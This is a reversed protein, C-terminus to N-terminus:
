RAKFVRIAKAAPQEQEKISLQSMSIGIDVDPDLNIGGGLPQQIPNFLTNFCCAEKINLEEKAKKNFIIDAVQRANKDALQLAQMEDIKMTMLGEFTEMLSRYYTEEKQALLRDFKDQLHATVRGCSCRIHPITAFDQLEEITPRVIPRKM